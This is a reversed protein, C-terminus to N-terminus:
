DNRPPTWDWPLLDNIRRIPHDSLRELVNALWAQPDVGNLKGTATLTYIAAACKLTALPHPGLM